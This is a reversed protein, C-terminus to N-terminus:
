RFRQRHVLVMGCCKTPNGRRPKDFNTHQPGLRSGHIHIHVIVLMGITMCVHMWVYMCVHMCAYMCVHTYVTMRVYMCACMKEKCLWHVSCPASTADCRPYGEWSMSLLRM